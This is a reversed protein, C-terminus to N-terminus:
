ALVVLADAAVVGVPGALLPDTDVEAVEGSLDMALRHMRMLVDILGVRDSAPQEGVGRLLAAGPPEEQMASARTTLAM